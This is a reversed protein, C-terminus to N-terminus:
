AWTPEEPPHLLYARTRGLGRLEVDDVATARYQTKLRRYATESVLIAGPSATHELRSAMNVAEGWCDFAPRKRGIVGAVVPGVHLGVRVNIPYGLEASLAAVEEHMAFAFLAARQAHNPQRESVGAVAMYADGITKIKEVKFQEARDDFRSFLRNLMDVLQTPSLRTSLSTFGVLDAFVVSVDGHTDAIVQEGAQMRRAIEKPLMSDLLEQIRGRAEGLARVTMFQERRTRERMTAAWLGSLGAGAVGLLNVTLTEPGATSLFVQIGFFVISSGLLFLLSYAFRLQFISFVWVGVIVPGIAGFDFGRRLNLYIVALSAVSAIGSISILWEFHRRMPRLWLLAGTTWLVPIMVYLRIAQGFAWNQPDIARDWLVFSYTAFGAVFIVVQYIPIHRLVYEDKFAGELRADAFGLGYRELVSGIM